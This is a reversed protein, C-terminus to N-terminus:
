PIWEGGVLRWGTATGLQPTSRGMRPNFSRLIHHVDPRQYVTPKLERILEREEAKAMELIDTDGMYKAGRIIARLCNVQHWELPLDPYEVDLSDSPRVPRRIYSYGVYTVAPPVQWASFNRGNLYYYQVTGQTERYKPYCTALEVENVPYLVRDEAPIFFVLPSHFDTALEADPDNAALQAVDRSILLRFLYRTTLALAADYLWGDALSDISNNRLQNKVEDRMEQGTM